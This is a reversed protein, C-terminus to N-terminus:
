SSGRLNNLFGSLILNEEFFSLVGGKRPIIAPAFVVIIGLFSAAINLM